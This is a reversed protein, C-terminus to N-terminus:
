REEAEMPHRVEALGEGSPLFLWLREAHSAVGLARTAADVRANFRRAGRPRGRRDRPLLSESISRSLASAEEDAACVIPQLRPGLSRSPNWARAARWRRRATALGALRGRLGAGAGRLKRPENVRWLM